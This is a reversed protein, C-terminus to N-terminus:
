SVPPTQVWFVVAQVVLLSIVGGFGYVIKKLHTNDAKLAAIDERTQTSKEAADGVMKEIRELQQRMPTLHAELLKEDM